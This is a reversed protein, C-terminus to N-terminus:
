LNTLTGLLTPGNNFRINSLFHSHGLLEFGVLWVITGEESRDLTFLIQKAM